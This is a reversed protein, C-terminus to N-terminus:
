AAGFSSVLEITDGERLPVALGGSGINLPLTQGNLVLQVVRRLRGRSDFVQRELAPHAATLAQLAEDATHAHLEFESQNEAFRRLVLALRLRV